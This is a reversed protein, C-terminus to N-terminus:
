EVKIPTPGAPAAASEEELLRLSADVLARVGLLAERRANTFHQRAAPTGPREILRQGLDLALDLLRHLEERGM